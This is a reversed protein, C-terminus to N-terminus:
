IVKFDSITSRYIFSSICANKYSTIEIIGTASNVLMDYTYKDISNVCSVFNYNRIIRYGWIDKHKEEIYATINRPYIKETYSSNIWNDIYTRTFEEKPILILYKNIWYEFYIIINNM